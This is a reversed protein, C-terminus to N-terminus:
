VNIMEKLYEALIAHTTQHLTLPDIGGLMIGGGGRPAYSGMLVAIVRGEDNVIPGGSQGERAQTNLIIHKNLLGHSTILVKAGIQSTHQTLVLRGHNAHPFGLSRVTSGVKIDDVEALELWEHFTGEVELVCLDHIPDAAVITANFTEVSRDSTDQFEDLSNIKPLIVNLQENQVGAVHLATVVRNNSVAFCSGLLSVGSVDNKGVAMVVRSLDMYILILVSSLIRRSLRNPHFPCRRPMRCASQWSEVSFGVGENM